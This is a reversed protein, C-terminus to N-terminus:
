QKRYSHSQICLPFLFPREPEKKEIHAVTPRAKIKHTHMGKIQNPEHAKNKESSGLYQSSICLFIALLAVAGVIVILVNPSKGAKVRSMKVAPPPYM